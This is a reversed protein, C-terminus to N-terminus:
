GITSLGGRKAEEVLHEAARFALAQITMTPHNRGGTVMSSGDVIFLNPVDHARHWKDVVSTKPDKGMRCTGRSHAGGRTDSIPEPWVTTAGAAQLIEVSKQKFFEMSKFDDPHSTTTIRMAPLGWADKLDPDLDVRNTELPLQTIFNTITMKRNAQERLAKKYGAGWSPADHPGGLGYQIPSQQGRATMRGGGYFGRKPDTHVYDLIAAGTVCGKFENLPHEFVGTAGSINGSMLYKGVIGSSNALGEPFLASKSLLLLRPSESGNASLVIVKAKQFVEQKQADFYIAGTVRGRKDVSIERVYSNVRIECRGTNLAIPFMTVASSSRAKVQCGFGSCMGCNVCAARGQYPETIIAAVNPVVTVGLKEAAVKFLAGSAKLPQPAVPYPKSMPAFFPSDVRLGAIGIEWEAKTYYPEMEAYSVPWDALGTGAITGVHTAENFEYPLHRWSSGGYTVTGGGVVCGYSHTGRVAKEKDNRRFTNPQRVVPDSMLHDAPTPPFMNLLEDKNYDQEHGYAGWSGQELVVVSFGAVSLEKAMIGGAAGSGIVLFDVEQTPPYQVM